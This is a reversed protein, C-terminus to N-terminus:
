SSNVFYKFSFKYFIREKLESRSLKKDTQKEKKPLIFFRPPPIRFHKDGAKSSSKTLITHILYPESRKGYFIYRLTSSKNQKFRFIEKENGLITEYVKITLHDKLDLSVNFRFERATYDKSYHKNHISDINIHFSEILIEEVEYTISNIHKKEGYSCKSVSFYLNYQRLGKKTHSFGNSCVVIVIAITLINKKM